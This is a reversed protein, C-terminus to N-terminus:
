ETPFVTTFWPIIGTTVRSPDISAMGSKLAIISWSNLHRKTAMRNPSQSRGVRLPSDHFSHVSFPDVVCSVEPSKGCFRLYMRFPPGPERWILGYWRQFIIQEKSWWVIRIAEFWVIDTCPENSSSTWLLVLNERWHLSRFARRSSPHVSSDAIWFIKM